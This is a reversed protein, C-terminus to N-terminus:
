KAAAKKKAARKQKKVEADIAKRAEDPLKALPTPEIINHELRIRCWVCTPKEGSEEANKWGSADIGCLTRTGVVQHTGFRSGKPAAVKTATTSRAMSVTREHREASSWGSFVASPAANADDRSSGGNANADPSREDTALACREPLDDEYLDALGGLEAPLHWLAPDIATVLADAVRYRTWDREALLARITREPVGSLFELEVPTSTKLFQLITPRLRAAPVYPGGLPRRGSM